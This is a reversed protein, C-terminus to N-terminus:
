VMFDNIDEKTLGENVSLNISNAIINSLREVVQDIEKPTVFMSSTYPQLIDNIINYKREDDLKFMETLNEDTKTNSALEYIIHDISDSILTTTSIVTPVGIAVVKVGLTEENLGKRANGIGAGPVIGSDSIQITNNIREIKRGALADVVIVAKPKIKDVVGKVIDVTEVGTQGMVGPSIAYVRSFNRKIDDSWLDYMHGTVIAKSVVKPGIADPTVFENGLGVILVRDDKHIDILERIKETALEIVIDHIERDPGKMEECEITVYKGIPKGIEKSAEDTMVNVTTVFIEQGGVKRVDVKIGDKEGTTCYKEQMELALDTRCNQLFFNLNPKDKSM